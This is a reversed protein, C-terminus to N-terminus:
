LAACVSGGFYNRFTEQLAAIRGLSAGNRIEVMEWHLGQSRSSSRFDNLLVAYSMRIGSDNLLHRDLHRNAFPIAMCNGLLMLWHFGGHSSIVNTIALSRNGSNNM